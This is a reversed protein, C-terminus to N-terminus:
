EAEAPAEDSPQARPLPRPPVWPRSGRHVRDSLVEAGGPSLWVAHAGDRWVAFRDVV